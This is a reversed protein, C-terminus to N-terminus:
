PALAADPGLVHAVVPLMAFTEKDLVKDLADKASITGASVLRELATDMGQMGESAGSQIFSAIQSTKAERILSALAYSGLLISTSASSETRKARRRRV